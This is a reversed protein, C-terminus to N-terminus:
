HMQLNTGDNNRIGGRHFRRINAHIKKGGIMINDLIIALVRADEVDRFRVFGYRKGKKDRKPPVVVEKVLGFHKFEEFMNKAKFGELFETFFFSSINNKENEAGNGNEACKGNKAGWISRTDVKQRNSKTHRVETWREERGM